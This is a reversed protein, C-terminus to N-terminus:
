SKDDVQGMYAIVSRNSRKRQTNAGQLITLMLQFIPTKGKYKTNFERIMGELTSTAPVDSFSSILNSIVIAQYLDSIQRRFRKDGARITFALWLSIGGFMAIFTASVASVWTAVIITNM